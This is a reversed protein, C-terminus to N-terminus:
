DDEGISFLGGSRYSTMEVDDSEEYRGEDIDGFLYDFWGKPQEEKTVRGSLTEGTIMSVTVPVPPVFLQKIATVASPNAIPQDTVVATAQGSSKDLDALLDDHFLECFEEFLGKQNAQSEAQTDDRCEAVPEDNFSAKVAGFIANLIEIVFSGGPIDKVASMVSDKVMSLAKYVVYIILAVIAAHTLVPLLAPIVVHQLAFLSTNGVATGLMCLTPHVAMFYALATKAAVAEAGFKAVLGGVVAGAALAGAGFKLATANRSFFSPSAAQVPGQPLKGKSIDVVKSDKNTAQTVALERGTVTGPTVVNRVTAM